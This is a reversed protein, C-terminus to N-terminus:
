YLGLVVAVVESSVKTFFSLFIVASFFNCKLSIVMLFTKYLCTFEVAPAPKWVAVQWQFFFSLFFFTIVCGAIDQIWYRWGKKSMWETRYKITNEWKRQFSIWYYSHKFIISLLFFINILAHQSNSVLLKM